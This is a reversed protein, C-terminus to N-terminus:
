TRRLLRGLRAAGEELKDANYFAFSLRMFNQLGGNSSFNRGPQFGVQVEQAATQLVTTDMTEPFELWFFYGGTPTTYRVLDGLEHTLAQDLRAIRAQFLSRLDALYRAQDGEDLIVRVINSTFHNLSGGSYILGGEVVRAIVPPAAQLWGLRLGPALIKSFSGVSIIPGQDVSAAMPPPPPAGMHLLQYVEDAVILFDHDRALALLRERRDPSLTVGTPNQFVPITYLLAPRHRALAEELLDVRLGHDDVPIGVVRLGHDAFIRLAIFYTPEEVFIVDGPKTYLTCLLDLAQSAGGTVLLSDATVPLGYGQSLFVALARRFYGDGQEHGYNLLTTDGEALRQRTARRVIELPLISFDPQGVGFDIMNPPLDVQATPIPKM